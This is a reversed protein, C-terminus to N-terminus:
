EKEDLGQLGCESAYRRKQGQNIQNSIGLLLEDERRVMNIGYGMALLPRVSAEGWAETRKVRTWGSILRGREYLTEPPADPISIGGRRRWSGLWGGLRRVVLRPFVRLAPRPIPATTCVGMELVVRLPGNEAYEWYGYGWDGVPM